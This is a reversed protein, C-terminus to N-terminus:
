RANEPPATSGRVILETALIISQKEQKEQKPESRGQKEAGGALTKLLCDVMTIGLEWMPQAVTTLPPDTFATFRINDFGVVSVDQPSRLGAERIAFLAGMALEDSFCFLATPRKKRQLLDRTIDVASAISYDSDRVLLQKQATESLVSRCGAMRDKTIPTKAPGTIVAIQKHGLDRLYQIVMAGAAVNDIHVSNVKHRLSFECGNVIPAAYGKEAVLAKLAPPVRESLFIMGDVERRLLMRAYHEERERDGGIDGVIVSYGATKAAAEAGKIIAGFFPNAIDPVLILIRHTRLNRLNQASANPVYGMKAMVAAVQERTKKSVRTPNSFVRSVTTPSVGAAKAVDLIGPSTKLKKM